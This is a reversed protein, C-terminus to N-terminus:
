KNFYDKILQEVEHYGYGQGSILDHLTRREAKELHYKSCLSEVQEKQVGRNGSMNGKAKGMKERNSGGQAFGSKNADFTNMTSFPRFLSTIMNKFFSWGSTTSGFFLNFEPYKNELKGSARRYWRGKGGDIAAGGDWVNFAKVSVGVSTPIGNEVVGYSTYFTNTEDNFTLNGVFDDDTIHNWSSFDFSEFISSNNFSIADMFRAIENPDSTSWYDMGFPDVRNIPNSGCFAYKSISYYDEALPDVVHWRGLTPDYMRAGYDYWNLGFQSVLEKGSYKYPQISLSNYVGGFPYYNNSEEVIGDYRVTERNNGQYDRIFYHYVTDQDFTIYGEDTLLMKLIGQEYIANGDYYIDVLSGGADEHASIIKRGDVDFNNQICAGDDFIIKTPLNLYNYKIESIGKNLDRTLNGNGDYTYESSQSVVDRFEFGSGYASHISTDSIRALQKNDNYCYLLDDVLGYADYGIRGFRKLALINSEKDYGIVQENFRGTNLNLSDGEGYEAKLVRNLGDYNYCYGRTITDSRWTMSSINGNYFPTNKGDVYYIKQQFSPCDIGTLWGRINYEFNTNISRNHLQKKSLRGLADYYNESLVVPTNNDLQHITMLLRGLADYEYTYQETLGKCNYELKKNLLRGDFSYAYYEVDFDSILNETRKQVLM